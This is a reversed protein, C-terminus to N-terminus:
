QTSNMMPRESAAIIPLVFDFAGAVMAGFVGKVAAKASSFGIPPAFHSAIRLDREWEECQKGAPQRRRRM